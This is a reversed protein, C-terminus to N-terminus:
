IVFSLINGFSVNIFIGEGGEGGVIIQVSLGDEQEGGEDSGEVATELNYTSPEFGGFRLIANCIDTKREIPGGSSNHFSRWSWKDSPFWQPPPGAGLKGKLLGAGRLAGILEALYYSPTHRKWLPGGIKVTSRPLILRSEPQAVFDTGVEGSHPISM